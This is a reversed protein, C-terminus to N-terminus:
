PRSRNSASDCVMLEKANVEVDTPLQLLVSPKEASDCNCEADCKSPLLRYRFTAEFTTPSHQEFQWTKVNEQAAQALMPQGSEVEASAVRHGDTSIRLRVVGDIHAQQTIRPYFPVSASIVSPLPKQQGIAMIAGMALIFLVLVGITRLRLGHGITNM